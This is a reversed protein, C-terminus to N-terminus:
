KKFYGQIHRLVRHGQQKASKPSYGASIAAKTSNGKHILFNELFLYRKYSKGDFLTGGGLETKSAIHDALYFYVIDKPKLFILDRIFLVEKLTFEPLPKPKKFKKDLCLKYLLYILEKSNYKEKQM